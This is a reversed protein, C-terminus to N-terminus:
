LLHTHMFRPDDCRAGTGSDEGGFRGYLSLWLWGLCRDRCRCGRRVVVVNGEGETEDGRGETWVGRDGARLALKQDEDEDEDQRLGHCSRSLGSRLWPQDVLWVWLLCASTAGSIM